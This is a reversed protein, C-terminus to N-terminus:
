PEGSRDRTRPDDFTFKAGDIPGGVVLESLGVVTSLGVADIVVWQALEFPAERFILTLSGQDVAGPDVLTLRVQGPSRQVVRIYSGAFDLDNRLLPRLPTTFIPWSTAEDLEQDYLHVSFGDAVILLPVPPDYEFRMLGPRRLYFDGESIEGGPAVQVFRATLTDIREIWDEIRAADEADAASLAAPQAAASETALLLALAAGACARLRRPDPM